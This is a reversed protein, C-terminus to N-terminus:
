QSAVSNIFLRSRINKDIHFNIFDDLIRSLQSRVKKTMDFRWVNTFDSKEIHLMSAIAGKFIDYSASDKNFCKPCILGGLRTSFKAKEEISSGCAICSDVRPRFGSLILTKIEYISRIPAPKKLNKLAKLSEFTLEFLEENHDEIQTVANLLDVFYLAHILREYELRVEFFYDVLDCQSITYLGGKSKKYFVIDTCAFPELFNVSKNQRGRVGKMVGSVKGFDKTYFTVLVSTERLKQRKLVIAQSKEISM